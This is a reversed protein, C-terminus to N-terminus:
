SLQYLLQSKILPDCTRARCPENLILVKCGGEPPQSKIGVLWGWRALAYSTNELDRVVVDQSKKKVLVMKRKVLILFFRLM